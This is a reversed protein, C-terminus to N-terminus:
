HPAHPQEQVDLVLLLDDNDLFLAYLAHACNM